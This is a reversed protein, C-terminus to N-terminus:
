SPQVRRAICVLTQGFLARTLPDLARSFPLVYKEFMVIQGNVADSDLSEHRRFKNVWWGLGGIPNFYCLKEIKVPLGDLLREVDGLSYRRYHGALRDMDNYLVMLAPVSMMLVGGPKLADVLNRAATRDDEIHELVSVTLIGDAGGPLVSELFKPELIDAREFRGQPFRKKAETVCREDIDIGVYACLPSLAEYYSGHGIGVEVVNGHLHPKFPSLMWDIYRYAVAMASSYTDAGTKELAAVRPGSMRDGTMRVTRDYVAVGLRWAMYAALALLAAVVGQMAAAYRVMSPQTLATGLFYANLVLGCYCLAAGATSLRPLVVVLLSALVAVLAIKGPHRPFTYTFSGTIERLLAIDLLRAGPSSALTAIAAARQEPAKFPPLPGLLAHYGSQKPDYAASLLQARSEIQGVLDSTRPFADRWLGYYHALVHRAYPVPEAAISEKALRMLTQNISLMHPRVCGIAEGRWTCPEPPRLAAYYNGLAPVASGWLLPNYENATYDIYQVVTDFKPPRQAIIPAVAQEVLKAEASLASGPRPHILWAVQGGLAFGGANSSEFTGFRELNFTSPVIWALAAPALTLVVLVGRRGPSALVLLTLPGLLVLGVSKVLVAAALALGSLLAFVPRRTDLYYIFLAIHAMVFASFPAETLLDASSGLMTAGAFTLCVIAWGALPSRCTRAVALALLVLAGMLLAAQFLPLYSWSPFLVRYADLMLPYGFTRFLSWILYGYSDPYPVPAPLLALIIAFLYATAGAIGLAFAWARVKPTAMAAALFSLIIVLWAPPTVSYRIAYARGNTAPNTNDTASFVLGNGWHSYLGAGKEVIEAHLAHPGRLPLGQETVVIPSAGPHDNSDAVIGLAGRLFPSPLLEDIPVEYANGARPVVQRSDIPRSWQFPFCYLALAIVALCATAIRLKM